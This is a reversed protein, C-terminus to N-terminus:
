SAAVLSRRYATLKDRLVELEATKDFVADARAERCRRRMPPSADHTLVFVAPEPSLQKFLVITFGIAVAQGHFDLMVVHPQFESACVIAECTSGPAVCVALDDQEALWASLAASAVGPNGVLLVRLSSETKPGIEM